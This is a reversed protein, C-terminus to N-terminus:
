KKILLFVTPRKHLDPINKKWEGATKTFIMESVLSIDTAVCLFTSPECVSVIDQFMQMNRYPTEIFIQTQRKKFSEQELKKIMSKREEKEIPLYGNFCFSQGNLGSAMLALFISSPGTLPVVKINKTHALYIIEAGPDAIAPMGAESLLGTHNGSLAPELFDSYDKKDGHKDLVVIKLSQQVIGADLNKLFHRASKENEVIFYEVSAVIKKVREPIVHNTEASGLSSPILYLNGKQM